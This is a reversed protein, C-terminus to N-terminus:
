RVLWRVPLRELNALEARAHALREVVHPDTRGAAMWRELGEIQDRLAQTRLQAARHRNPNMRKSAIPPTHRSLTAYRSGSCGDVLTQVSPGSHENKPVPRRCGHRNVVVADTHGDGRLLRQYTGSVTRCETRLSV